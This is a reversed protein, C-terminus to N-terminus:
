PELGRRELEESAGVDGDAVLNRLLPTGMRWYPEDNTTSDTWLSPGEPTAAPDPAVDPDPSGPPPPQRRDLEYQAAEDGGAAMRELADRPVKDYGDINPVIDTWGLNETM